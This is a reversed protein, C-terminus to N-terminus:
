PQKELSLKFHWCCVGTKTKQRCYKKDRMQINYKKRQAQAIFSRHSEGLLYCFTSMFKRPLCFVINKLGTMLFYCISEFDQADGAPLELVIEKSASEKFAGRFMAEFYGSRSAIVKPVVYFTRDNVKLAKIETKVADELAKNLKIAAMIKRYNVWFFLIIPCKTKTARRYLWLLFFDSLFVQIVM